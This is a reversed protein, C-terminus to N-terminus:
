RTSATKSTVPTQFVSIELLRARAVVIVVHVTSWLPPSPLSRATAAVFSRRNVSSSVGPPFFLRQRTRTHIHTRTTASPCLPIRRGGAKGGCPRVTPVRACPDLGFVVFTKFILFFPILPLSQSPSPFFPTSANGPIRDFSCCACPRGGSCGCM